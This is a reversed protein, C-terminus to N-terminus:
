VCRATYLLCSELAGVEGARRGASGEPMGRVQDWGLRGAVQALAETQRQFAMLEQFASM